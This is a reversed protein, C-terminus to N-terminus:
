KMRFIEIEERGSELSLSRRDEEAFYLEKKIDITMMEEVSDYGFMRAMAPNIDVFRGGSTSRYIGDLTREFLSSYKNKFAEAAERSIRSDEILQQIESIDRFIGINGAWQQREDIIKAYFVEAQFTDGNRKRCLHVKLEGPFDSAAHDLLGSAILHPAEDAFLLEEKINILEQKEYAFLNAMVQNVKRIVGNKNTIILGVPTTEFIADFVQQQQLLNNGDLMNTLVLSAKMAIIKLVSHLLDPDPWSSNSYISLVGVNQQDGLVIGACASFGSNSLWKDKSFQIEINDTVVVCHQNLVAEFFTHSISFKSGAKLPYGSNVSLLRAKSAGAKSLDVRVCPAELLDALFSVLAEFFDTTAQHEGFGALFDVTKTISLQWNIKM